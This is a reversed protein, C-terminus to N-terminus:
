TQPPPGPPPRRDHWADPVLWALGVVVLVFGVAAGLLGAGRRPTLVLLAGGSAAALAAVRPITRGVSWEWRRGGLVWVAALLAVGLLGGVLMVSQLGGFVVEWVADAAARDGPDGFSRATSWKALMLGLALLSMWGTLMAGALMGAGRRRDTVAVGGAVLVLGVTVLVWAAPGLGRDVQRVASLARDAVAVRAQLDTVSPLEAALAPDMAAVGDRVQALADPLLLVVEQGNGELAAEASIRLSASLLDAFEDSRLLSSVVPRLMPRAFQAIMPADELAADVMAESLASRIEERDLLEGSFSALRDPDLLTRDIWLASVGVCLYLTGFVVMVAAAIRPLSRM